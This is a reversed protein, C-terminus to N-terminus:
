AARREFQAFVRLDTVSASAQLTWNDGAATQLLPKDDNFVAGRTDGAPLYWSLIITGATDDRLDVRVATASTNAITLALLDHFESAAATVITTENTNTITTAQTDTNSVASQNEVADILACLIQLVAARYSDTSRALQQPQCCPECSSRPM